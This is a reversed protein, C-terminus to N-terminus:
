LEHGARLPCVDQDERPCVSFGTTVGEQTWGRTRARVAAQMCCLCEGSKKDLLWCDRVLLVGEMVWRGEENVAVVVGSQGLYLVRRNTCSIAKLDTLMQAVPLAPHATVWCGVSCCGGKEEM